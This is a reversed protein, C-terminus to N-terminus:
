RVVACQPLANRIEHVAAATVKTDRLCLWLLRKHSMLERATDDTVPTESLDLSEVQVLGKLGQGTVKTGSLLLTALNKLQTLEKLGEDTVRTRSLDLFQFNKDTTLLQKIAKMDADTIPRGSFDVEIVPDGEDQEEFHVKAGLKELSAVVGGDETNGAVARDTPQVAADDVRRGCAAMTALGIMLAAWGCRKSM